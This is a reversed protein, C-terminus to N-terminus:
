PIKRPAVARTVNKCAKSGQGSSLRNMVKSDTCIDRKWQQAALGHLTEVREAQTLPNFSYRMVDDSTKGSKSDREHLWYGVSFSGDPRPVVASVQDVVDYDEYPAGVDTMEIGAGPQPYEASETKNPWRASWGTKKDFRLTTFLTGAECEWCDYYKIALETNGTAIWDLLKVGYGNAIAQRKGTALSINYISWLDYDPVPADPGRVATMVLAFGSEVGVERIATYPRGQLARRVIAMTAKDSELKVWSFGAPPNSQALGASPLFASVLLVISRKM